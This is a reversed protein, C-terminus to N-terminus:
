VVEYGRSTESVEGAKILAKLAESARRRSLGTNEAIIRLSLPKKNLSFLEMICDQDNGIDHATTSARKKSHPKV